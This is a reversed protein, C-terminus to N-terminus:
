SLHKGGCHHCEDGQAALNTQRLNMASLEDGSYEWGNRVNLALSM